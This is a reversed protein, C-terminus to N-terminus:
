PRQLITEAKELLITCPVRLLAPGTPPGRREGNSPRHTRKHVEAKGLRHPEHCEGRQRHGKAERDGRIGGRLLLRGEARLRTGKPRSWCRSREPL